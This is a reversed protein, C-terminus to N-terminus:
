NSPELSLKLRIPQLMGSPPAGASVRMLLTRLSDDAAADSLSPFSVRDVQGSAMIWLRVTLEAPGSDGGAAAHMRELAERLRRAEGDNSSLAAQSRQRLNAAYDNWAAPADAVSRFSQAKARWGFLSTFMLVGVILLATPVYGNPLSRKRGALAHLRTSTHM